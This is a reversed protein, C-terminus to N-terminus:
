KIKKEMLSVAVKHLTKLDTKLEQMYEDALKKKEDLLGNELTM